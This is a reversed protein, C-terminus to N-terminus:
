KARRWHVVLFALLLGSLLGLAVFLIRQPFVREREDPLTPPDIIRFAYEPQGSAFMYTQLQREYAAALAANLANSGTGAGTSNQAAAMAQTLYEMNQKAESLARERLQANTLAILDKAWKVALDRDKWTIALVVIGSRRDLTIDRIQRSFLKFGARLTPVRKGTVKWDKKDADWKGDFLVPLLNERTAYLDFIERSALVALAEDENSAPRALLSGINGLGGGLLSSLGGADLGALGGGSKTVPMVTIEVRWYSPLLFALAASTGVCLIMVSLAMLWSRRLSSLFRSLRDTESAASWVQEAQGVRM